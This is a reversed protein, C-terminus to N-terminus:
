CCGTPCAISKNKPLKFLEDEDYKKVSVVSLQKEPIYCAEAMEDKLEDITFKKFSLRWMKYDNGNEDIPILLNRNRFLMRKITKPKTAKAELTIQIHIPPNQPMVSLCEKYPELERQIFVISKQYKKVTQLEFLEDIFNGKIERDRFEGESNFYIEFLMGNLIHLAQSKPFNALERRLDKIINVANRVNGCACQYLNRGLVFSQNPTVKSFDIDYLKQIAPNQTHWNYKKLKKIIKISPEKGTLPFDVDSLAEESYVNLKEPSINVRDKELKAIITSAFDEPTINKLKIYGITPLMGPIETDDFKAPLIYEKSEMFARAQASEREHNTWLKDKYYKSIFLVTYVAKNQYIERLYTYLNKGWLNIEDFKDYFVLVGNKKLFGAVKEVYQRDEGAFSLAVHYKKSQEMNM